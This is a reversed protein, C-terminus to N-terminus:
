GIRPFKKPPTILLRGESVKAWAYLGKPTISDVIPEAKNLIEIIKIDAFLSQYHSRYLAINKYGLKKAEVKIDPWFKSWDQSPM